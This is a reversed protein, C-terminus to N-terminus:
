KVEAEFLGVENVVGAVVRGFVTSWDPEGKHHRHGLNPHDVGHARGELDGFGPIERGRTVKLDIHVIAEADHSAVRGSSWAKATGVCELIWKFLKVLNEILDMGSDFECSFSLFVVGNCEEVCVDSAFVIACKFTFYVPLGSVGVDNDLWM